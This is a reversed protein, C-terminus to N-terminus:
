RGPLYQVTISSRRRLGEVWQQVIAARQQQMVKTRVIDRVAALPQVRGDIAFEATHDSYYRDVDIDSPAVATAFRQELYADIRLTEQIFRRLDDRSMAHQGLAIEFALADKFRAEIARVRAEVAAAPPEPPAYREVETLMVHRDILRRLVAGVPDTSVDPPVLEFKQAARVDSLTIIHGEVVALLRDLVVQSAASPRAAAFTVALLLVSVRRTM